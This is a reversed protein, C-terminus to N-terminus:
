TTRSRTSRSSAARRSTPPRATVSTAPSPSPQPAAPSPATSANPIAAAASPSPRSSSATASSTSGAPPSPTPGTPVSPTPPTSVTTTPAAASPAAPSSPPPTRTSTASFSATKAPPPTISVALTSRTSPAPSCRVSFTASSFRLAAPPAPPSPRPVSPSTGPPVPLLSPIVAAISYPGTTLLSAIFPNNPFAAQLQTIGTPTPTLTTSISPNAGNISRRWLTGGFFFLKDRLIPGGLTGGYENAVLRPKQIAVCNNAAPTQGPACYGFQPDKNTQLLSSGWSGVYNYFATGHLTNSGSKTNYNVVSGANRGYQAGFNNTVIQIESLADENRFFVQPGSISNDNNSQGDIEFNNSRGRLGNSSIGTGNTNAYNNSLTRVVGPILLTLRDLGGGTPLDTIQQAEFTATVQSQETQLIASTTGVDVTESATVSLKVIGTSSTVGSRVSIGNLTAPSFGASSISVNYEGIALDPINFEGASGTRGTTDIGTAKNHALISAGGVAAGSADQVTGALIGTVIGQTYALPTPLIAPTACLVAAFLSRRIPM